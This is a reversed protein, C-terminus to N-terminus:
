LVPKASAYLRIAAAPAAVHTAALTGLEGLQGMNHVQNSCATEWDPKSLTAVKAPLHDGKVLLSHVTVDIM